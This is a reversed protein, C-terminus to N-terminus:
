PRDTTMPVLYKRLRQIGLCIVMGFVAFVVIGNIILPEGPAQIYAYCVRAGVLVMVLGSVTSLTPGGVNPTQWAVLSHM